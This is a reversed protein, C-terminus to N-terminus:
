KREKDQDTILVAAARKVWTMYAMAERTARRYIHLDAITLSGLREVLGEEKESKLGPVHQYLWEELHAYLGEKAHKEEYFAVTQLLGCNQLMTPFRSAGTDFKKLDGRDTKIKEVFAYASKAREHDIRM